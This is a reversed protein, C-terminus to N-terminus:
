GPNTGQVGQYIIAGDAPMPWETCEFRHIACRCETCRPLAGQGRGQPLVVRGAKVLEVLLTRLGGTEHRWEDLATALAAAAAQATTSPTPAPEAGRFGHVATLLAAYAAETRLYQDRYDGLHNCLPFEL